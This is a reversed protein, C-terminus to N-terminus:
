EVCFIGLRIGATFEHASSLIQRSHASFKCTEALDLRNQALINFGM